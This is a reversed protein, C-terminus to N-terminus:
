LCTPLLCKLEACREGWLNPTTYRMHLSPIAMCRVLHMGDLAPVDHESAAFQLVSDLLTYFSITPLAFYPPRLPVRFPSFLSLM